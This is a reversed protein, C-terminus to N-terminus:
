RGRKPQPPEMPSETTREEMHLEHHDLDGRHTPIRIRNPVYTTKVTENPQIKFNKIQIFDHPLTEFNVNTYIAYITDILVKSQM